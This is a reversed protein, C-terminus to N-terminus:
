ADVFLWRNITNRTKGSLIRPQRSAYRTCLNSLFFGELNFFAWRGKNTVSSYPLIINGKSRYTRYFKIIVSYSLFASLWQSSWYTFIQEKFLAITSLTMRFINEFIILNGEKREKKRKKSFFIECCSHIGDTKLADIGCFKDIAGYITSVLRARYYM